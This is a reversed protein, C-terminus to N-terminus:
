LGPLQKLKGTVALLTLHESVVCVDFTTLMIKWMTVHLIFGCM